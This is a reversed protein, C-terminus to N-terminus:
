TFEVIMVSQVMFGVRKVLMRNVHSCVKSLSDESYWAIIYFHGHLTFCTMMFYGLWIHYKVAHEFPIDLARLLVSGRSVPLFLFNLCILGFFGLHSATRKM